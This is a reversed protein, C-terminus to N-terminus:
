DSVSANGHTPQCIQNENFSCFNQEQQGLAALAGLLMMKSAHGADSSEAANLLTLLKGTLETAQKSPIVGQFVCAIDSGTIQMRNLTKSELNKKM